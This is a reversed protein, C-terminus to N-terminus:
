LELILVGRELGAQRLLDDLDGIRLGRELRELAIQGIQLHSTM